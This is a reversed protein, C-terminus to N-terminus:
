IFDKIESAAESLMDYLYQRVIKITASQSNYYASDGAPYGYWGMNYIVDYGSNVSKVFNHYAKINREKYHPYYTNIINEALKDFCAQIDDSKNYCDDVARGYADIKKM